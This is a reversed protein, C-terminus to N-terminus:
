SRRSSSPGWGRQPGPRGPRLGTGGRGSRLLAAPGAHPHWADCSAMSQWWSWRARQGQARSDQSSLSHRSPGPPTAGTRGEVPGQDPVPNRIHVEPRDPLLHCELTLPGPGAGPTKHSGTLGCPRLARHTVAAPTTQGHGARTLNVDAPSTVVSLRQPHREPGLGGPAQDQRPSQLFALNQCPLDPTPTM